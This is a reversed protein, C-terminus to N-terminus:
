DRAPRVPVADALGLEAMRTNLRHLISDRSICTREDELLDREIQGAVIRATTPSVNWSRAAIEALWRRDWCATKGDEYVVQIQERRLSRWDRYAEMAGAVNVLDARQLVKLIMELLVGSSVCRRESRTLFIRIAEALDNADRYRGSTAQMARWISGALKRACFLEIGGDRKIVRVTGSGNM